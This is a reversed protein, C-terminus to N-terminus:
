CESFVAYQETNATDVGRFCQTKSLILLIWGQFYQPKSLMVLIWGQFYQTKSLILVIWGGLISRRAYYLCYLYGSFVADYKADSTDVRRFYQTSNHILLIWGGFVSRRASRSFM